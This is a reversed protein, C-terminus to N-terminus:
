KEGKELCVPCLERTPRVPLKEDQESYKYTEVYRADVSELQKKCEDCLRVLM